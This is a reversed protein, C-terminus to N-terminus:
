APPPLIAPTEEILPFAAHENLWRSQQDFVLVHLALDRSQCERSLFDGNGTRRPTFGDSFYTCSEGGLVKM